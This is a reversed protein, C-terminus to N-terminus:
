LCFCVTAICHWSGSKLRRLGTAHQQQSTCSLCWNNWQNHRMHRYRSSSLPPLFIAQFFPSTFSIARWRVTQTRGGDCSELGRSRVLTQVWHRIETPVDRNHRLTTHFWYAACDVHSNEQQQVRYIVTIHKPLRMHGDERPKQRFNHPLWHKFSHHLKPTSRLNLILAAICSSRSYAMMTDHKSSWLLSQVNWGGRCIRRKDRLLDSAHWRPTIRPTHSASSRGFSQWFAALSSMFSSSTSADWEM